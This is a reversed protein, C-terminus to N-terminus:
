PNAVVLYEPVYGELLTGEVEVRVHYWENSGFANNGQLGAQLIEIKSNAPLLFMGSAQDSPDRFLFASRYPILGTGIPTATPMASPTLTVLLRPLGGTTAQPLATTAPEPEEQGTGPLSSPMPTPTQRALGTKTRPAGITPGPTATPSVGPSATATSVAAAPVSLAAPTAPLFGWRQGPFSLMGPQSGVASRVLALGALIMVIAAMMLGATAPSRRGLSALRAQRKRGYDYYYYYDSHRADEKNFVLGLPRGGMREVQELAKLVRRETAEDRAVVLLTADAAPVLFSADSVALIPPSDLLVFEAQQRLDALAAPMGAMGPVLAPDKPLSGSTIVQLGPVSTPMLVQSASLKGELVQRLGIRNTLGFQKHLTPNRLDADVAVVRHGAQALIVALNAVITSKGAQPDGSTVLLTQLPMRAQASLLNAWLIRYEEGPMPPVPRRANGYPPIPISGLVPLPTIKELARSSHIVPNLAELLFSLGIGTLLGLLLGLALNLLVRPQSPSAPLRAPEVVSVSNARTAEIVGAEEYQRQLSAYLEETHRVRRDLEDLQRASLVDEQVAGALDARQQALTQELSAIQDQLVDRLSRQTGFYLAQSQEVLLSALVNAMDRARAPSEDEATIQLLETNLLVQAEIRGALAEPTADLGLRQALELVLPQSTLIRAYTNMLRDAYVFDAYEVTGSTTQAVRVTATASYIPRQLLTGLAVVGLTVLTGLLIVWQHRRLIDLYIRVDM